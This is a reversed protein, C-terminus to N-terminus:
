SAHSADKDPVTAPRNAPFWREFITTLELLRVPKALLDNMGMALYLARSEHSADATLAFILPRLGHSQSLRLCRTAELGDIGPMQVDMLVADYERCTAAEVAARGDAVTDVEHGLRLLLTELASRIVPHDDALLIRLRHPSACAEDRPRQYSTVM